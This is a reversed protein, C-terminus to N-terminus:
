ENMYCIKPIVLPYIHARGLERYKSNVSFQKHHKKDVIKEIDKELEYVSSYGEKILDEFDMYRLKSKNRKLMNLEKIEREYKQICRMIRRVDNPLSCINSGYHKMIAKGSRTTDWIMGDENLEENNIGRDNCLPCNDKGSRFWTVICDTHFIHGCEPLPYYNKETIVEHCIICNNNKKLNESINYPDFSTMIVIIIYPNNNNKKIVIKIYVM